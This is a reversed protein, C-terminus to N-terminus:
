RNPSALRQILQRYFPYGVIPVGLARARRAKSSLSDPDAAVVLRTKKSVSATPKLGLERAQQEMGGRDWNLHQGTFVICDGPALSFELSQCEVESPLPTSLAAEVDAEHLGLLGAVKVLEHREALTIVGDEKAVKALSSLYLRHCYQADERSLGLSIAASVLEAEEHLSLERDLLVRDLVELYSNANAPRETGEARSALRSLFHERRFAAGSQRLVPAVGTVPVTPWSLSALQPFSDRWEEVFGSSRHLYHTLLAAAARADDLASHADVISHGILACCAALSRSPTSLYRSAMLMTCLGLTGAVPVPVGIRQFEARLFSADFPLNHAVLIRGRLQEIIDGAIDEFTPAHFLDAATIGHIATAGVDRQPNVLTSWVSCQEGDMGVQVVAIEVIRHHRDPCLGTTEVDVVAFEYPLM